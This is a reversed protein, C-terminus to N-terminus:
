PVPYTWAAWALAAWGAIMLAGGIPAVAGMIRLDFIALIYLAGSFILTGATMLTGAWQVAPSPANFALVGVALLAVAHILHYRVATEFTDARGNAQLRDALGHAGFAGLAVGTLGLLAGILVWTRIM